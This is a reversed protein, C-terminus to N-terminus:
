RGERMTGDETFTYFKGRVFMTNSDDAGMKDSDNDPDDDEDRTPRGGKADEAEQDVQSILTQGPQGIGVNIDLKKFV